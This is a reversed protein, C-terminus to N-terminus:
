ERRGDERIDHRCTPCRVNQQFWPMICEEHFTHRCHNIVCLLQRDELPDQCIACNNDEHETATRLTTNNEIQAPTPRVIVTDDLFASSPQSFVQNLLASLISPNQRTTFYSSINVSEQPVTHTNVSTNVLPIPQYIDRIVFPNAMVQSQRSPVRPVSQSSARQSPARPVAQSPVQPSPQSIQQEYQQRGRTYPNNNAVHIIYHLVDQVTQFQEPHYLLEPFSQHLDNLLPSAYIRSDSM